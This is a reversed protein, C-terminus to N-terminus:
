LKKLVSSVYSRINDVEIVESVRLDEKPEFGHMCLLVGQHSTLPTVLCGLKNEKGLIIQLTPTTSAVSYFTDLSTLFWNLRIKVRGLASKMGHEFLNHALEKSTLLQQPGKSYIRGVVEPHSLGYVISQDLNLLIIPGLFDVQNGNLIALPQLNDWDKFVIKLGEYHNQLKSVIVEMPIGAHFFEFIKKKLLGFHALSDM